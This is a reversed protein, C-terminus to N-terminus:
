GSRHTSRGDTSEVSAWVYEPVLGGSRDLIDDLIGQRAQVITLRDSSTPTTGLQAVSSLWERRLDDDPGNGSPVQLDVRRRIVLAQRRILCLAAATTAFMAGLALVAAGGPLVLLCSLLGLVAIWMTITRVPHRLTPLYGSRTLCVAVGLFGLGTVLALSRTAGITLLSGVFCLLM